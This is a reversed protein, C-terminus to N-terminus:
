AHYSCKGNFEAIRVHLHRKIKGDADKLVRYEPFAEKAKFTIYAYKVPFKRKFWEPAYDKKVHEWATEPYLEYFTKEDSCAMFATLRVILADLEYDIMSQFEPFQLAELSLSRSEAAKEVKLTLEKYTLM